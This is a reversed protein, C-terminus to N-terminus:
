FIELLGYVNQEPSSPFNYALRVTLEVSEELRFRGRESHKIVTSNCREKDRGAPYQGEFHEKDTLGTLLDKLAIIM